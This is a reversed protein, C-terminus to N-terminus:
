LLHLNNSGLPYPVLFHLRMVKPNILIDILHVKDEMPAANEQMESCVEVQGEIGAPYYEIFESMEEGEVLEGNAKEVEM